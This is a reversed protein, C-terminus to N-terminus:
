FLESNIDTEEKNLWENFTKLEDKTLKKLM